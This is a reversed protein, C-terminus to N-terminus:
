ITGQQSNFSPKQKIQWNGCEDHIYNRDFSIWVNSSSQNDTIRTGPSMMRSLTWTSIKMSPTGFQTPRQRYIYKVSGLKDSTYTRKMRPFAKWRWYRGITSRDKELHIKRNLPTDPTPLGVMSACTPKKSIALATLICVVQSLHMENLEFVDLELQASSFITESKPNIRSIAANPLLTM